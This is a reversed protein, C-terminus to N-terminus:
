RRPSKNETKPNRTESKIQLPLTAKQKEAEERVIAQVKPGVEIMHRQTIEASKQMMQPVKEVYAKGVPSKYFEVLGKLEEESFIDAYAAIFEDKLNKWSLQEQMFDMTKERVEKAAVADFDSLTMTKVQAMQMQRAAAFSQEINRDFKMLVLAEEALKKREAEGAFVPLAFLFVCLGVRRFKM